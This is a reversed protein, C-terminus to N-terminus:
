KNEKRGYYKVMNDCSMTWDIKTDMDHLRDVYDLVALLSTRQGVKCGSDVHIVQWVISGNEIAPVVVLGDVDTTLAEVVRDDSPSAYTLKIRTIQM